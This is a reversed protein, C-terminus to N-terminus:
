GVKRQAEYIRIQNDSTMRFKGDNWAIEWVGPKGNRIRELEVQWHPLGVGPLGEIILSPLPKIRWRSVCATATLKLAKDAVSFLRFVFGTVQSKEVALQLRRSETFSMNCLEAVVATVATCKLAEEMVWLVDREEELDIFVVRDPQVGFAKLAPPYILRSSSIWLIVGGDKMLHTLIGSVFASTASLEEYTTTIFEHISGLPFTKHPFADSLTGWGMEPAVGSAPKFGQFRLIDAQLSAIINAKQNLM